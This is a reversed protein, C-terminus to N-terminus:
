HENRAILLKEYLRVLPMYETSDERKSAYAELSDSGSHWGALLGAWHTGPGGHQNMGFVESGQTLHDPVLMGEPLFDIIRASTENVGIPLLEFQSYGGQEATFRICQLDELRSVVGRWTPFEFTGGVKLELKTEFMWTSLHEQDTILQWARKLDTELTRTFRITSPDLIECCREVTIELQQWNVFGLDQAVKVQVAGLDNGHEDAESRALSTLFSVNAVPSDLPRNM